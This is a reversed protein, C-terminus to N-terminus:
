TGKTGSVFNESPLDRSWGHARLSILIHYLEECDTVVVGGEITSIHHSFFTSFTGMIGFTGAYSGDLSAGM